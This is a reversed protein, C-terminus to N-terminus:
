KQRRLIQEEQPSDLKLNEIIKTAVESINLYQDYDAPKKEDFFKTKMGGPYVSIVTINKERVEERISKTFGDAAFKSACYSSSGPRGSLASVSLINMITGQEQKQMIRLAERTGYMTGFVNVEFIDHVKKMDLDLVSGHKYWVGANNIWIDIRGLQESVQSALSQVQKEKSVDAAIPVAGIDKAAKLLKDKDRSSIIVQSGEQLFQKALELGLGESSGTIVVIKKNLDM